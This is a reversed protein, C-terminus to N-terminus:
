CCFFRRRFFNFVYSFATIFYVSFRTRSGSAISSSLLLAMFGAGFAYVGCRLPEDDDRSPPRTAGAGADDKLPRGMREGKAEAARLESM